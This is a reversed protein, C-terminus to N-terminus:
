NSKPREPRNNPVLLNNFDLEEKPFNLLYAPDKENLVYKDALWYHTIAPMGSRRLDWWRHFEEFCLERRREELTFKLLAEKNAFGAVTLPVYSGIRKSRLTNLYTVATSNQPNSSRIYAEALNLYVEATRMNQTFRVNDYYSFKTPQHVVSALIAGPQGSPQVFWWNRRRDTSTYTDILAGEVGASAGMCIPSLGVKDSTFYWYTGLISAGTMPGFTWAIENNEFPYLFCKTANSGSGSPSTTIASIDKLESTILLYKEGYTIVKQFDEMYLFIRTALILSAKYNIEYFTRKVKDKALAEVSIEIDRSILDWIEKITARPYRNLSPVTSTILPVCLDDDNAENYPKSYLNALIFYGYARTFYAQGKLVNKEDETGTMKDLAEICINAALINKYITRFLNDTFIGEPTELDKAWQFAYKCYDAKTNAVTTAYQPDRAMFNDTMAEIFWGNKLIDKFYAEGQLLEKFHAVSVPRILDQSSQELFRSCSSVLITNLIILFFIKKMKKDM